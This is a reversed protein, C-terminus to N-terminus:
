TTKRRRSPKPLLKEQAKLAALNGDAEAHRIAKRRENLSRIVTLRNLEKIESEALYSKAIDVDTQTVHDGKWVRLGMNEHDANARRTIM